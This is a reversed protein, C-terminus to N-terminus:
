QVFFTIRVSFKGFFSIFNLVQVLYMGATSDQLRWKVTIHYRINPSISNIIAQWNILNHTLKAEQNLTHTSKFRDISFIPNSRLMWEIHTEKFNVLLDSVHYINTSAIKHKHEEISWPKGTAPNLFKPNEWIVESVM